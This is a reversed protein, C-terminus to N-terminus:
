TYTYALHLQVRGVFKLLFSPFIQINQSLPSM